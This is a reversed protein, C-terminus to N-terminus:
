ASLKCGKEGDFSAGVNFELPPRVRRIGLGIPDGLAGLLGGDFATWLRGLEVLVFPFEYLGRTNGLVGGRASESLARTVPLPEPASRLFRERALRAALDPATVVLAPRREERSGFESAAADPASSPFSSHLIAPTFASPEPDM